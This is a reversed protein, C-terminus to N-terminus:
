VSVTVDAFGARLCEVLVDNDPVAARDCSVAICCWGAHSFLTVNVAAGFPPGLAYFRLLEAEGCYVPVPIGPVNSAIVDLQKLLGGSIRGGPLSNRSPRCCGDTV